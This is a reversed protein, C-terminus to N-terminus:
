DGKREMVSFTFSHSNLESISRLATAMREANLIGKEFEPATLIAATSKYVAGMKQLQVEMADASAKASAIDNKVAGRFAKVTDTYAALATKVEDTLETLMKAETTMFVRTQASLIVPSAKQVDDSLFLTEGGRGKITSLTWGRVAAASADSVRADFECLGERGSWRVM